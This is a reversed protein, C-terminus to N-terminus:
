KGPIAFGVKELVAVAEPGRLFETFAKAADPDSTKKLVAAPYTIPAHSGAPASTAIEVAASTAADTSYVVGCDVAGAAVQSLVEKVNGAFTIKQQDNMAKWVGLKEFIQQSYQGVPVDSNGLAVLKVKDTSVDDFSAIKNPNMGKPVILVVKNTVIDFRTGPMVFDLKETNVGPDATIDLQDMQKQGASIFVDCDAGQQIQTKLTGSSDFNCVIKVDPRVKGYLEVIQNLSETMSAAAFVSLEKQAAFSVGCGMVALLLLAAFVTCVSRKM